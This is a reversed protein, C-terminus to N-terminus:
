IRDLANIVIDAVPNEFRRLFQLAIEPVSSVEPKKASDLANIVIDAVPNEFM